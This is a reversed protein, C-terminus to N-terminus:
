AVPRRNDAGARPRRARPQSTVHLAILAYLRAAQVLDEVRMSFNGTGISPGPGYMLCPIGAEAFANLDRWLSTITSTAMGPAAGFVHQHAATTAAVLPEVNQAEYGRRYTYLELEFRVGCEQLFATLEEQVDLPDQAPTIRVDLYATANQTTKTIKYPLGSRIAGVNVRPVVTGGPGEYRHRREYEAAWPELRAILGALVVIANPSEFLATPNPREVFSIYVPPEQGFVTLKFFLNGGEVWGLRFDTAEAVLAYDAIAGRNIVYRSGAERSAYRPATFEDIPELEIEGCVSTLVLDGALPAAHDKLAKCAALWAAMQGKDNCLGNGFLYDGERWASHYIPDAAHRTSWIEDTAVSTDLHSNFLLSCGSGRGPLRGVVNLRDPLLSLRRPAFGERDLWQYVFEAAEREAGAPSDISSLQLALDVVTTEDLAALVREVVAPDVTAPHDALSM